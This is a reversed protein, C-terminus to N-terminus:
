PVSGPRRGPVSSSIEDCQQSTPRAGSIPHWARVALALREPRLSDAVLPALGNPKALRQVLRAAHRRDLHDTLVSAVLGARGRLVLEKWRALVRGDPPSELAAIADIAAFPSAWASEDELWREVREALPVELTATPAAGLAVAMSGPLRLDGVQSDVDGVWIPKRPDFSRLRQLLQSEFWAQSPQQAFHFAISGRRRVMLAEVNLVQHGVTALANLVRDTEGGLSTAIVRFAMMRPLVEMGAEVWRRYNIWGGPLVDVTWGRWRLARAVPLSDLGGRGCYVLIAKDFKLPSVLDALAAPLEGDSASDQAVLARSRDDIVGPVLPGQNVVAPSFQVADPIHDDEYEERTRVDIVLAYHSFDQM